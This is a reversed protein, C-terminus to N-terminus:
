GVLGYAALLAAASASQGAHAEDTSFHLLKVLGDCRRAFQLLNATGAVNDGVFGIPDKVSRDVHSGAAMHVIYDCPLSFRLEAKLDHWIYGLRGPFSNFLESLVAGEGLRDLVTVHWDTTSLVHRVFHRGIFGAGGTVLLRTV